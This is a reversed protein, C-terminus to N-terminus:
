PTSRRFMAENSKRTVVDNLYADLFRDQLQVQDYLANKSSYKYIPVGVIGGLVDGYWTRTLAKGGPKPPEFLRAADEPKRGGVQYKIIDLISTDTNPTKFGSAARRILNYTPFNTGVMQEWGVRPTRYTVNGTVPDVGFRDGTRPDRYADDYGPSFRLPVDLASRGLAAEPIDTLVPTINSYMSQIFQGPAKSLGALGEKRLSNSVEGAFQVTPRVSELPNAIGSGIFMDSNEGTIFGQIPDMLSSEEDGYMEYMARSASALLAARKPYKFPLAFALRNIARMWGYFPFVRRLWVREFPNYRSYNGMFRDTELIVDDILDDAWKEGRTAAASVEDWASVLTAPDNRLRVMDNERMKKKVAHWYMARRPIAELRANMRYGGAIVRKVINRETGSMGRALQGLDSSLGTAAIEALVSDRYKKSAAMRVAQLDAGAGLMFQLSMGFGNQIYWRPSLALVGAKWMSNLDDLINQRTALADKWGKEAARPILYQTGGGPMDELQSLLAADAEALAAEANDEDIKKGMKNLISQRIAADARLTRILERKSKAIYLGNSKKAVNVASRGTIPKGDDGRVVFKEVFNSVAQARGTVDIADRIAAMSIDPSFAATGERLVIGENIKARPTTTRPSEGLLPRDGLRARIGPQRQRFNPFYEGPKMGGLASDVVKKNKQEVLREDRQKKIAANQQRVKQGRKAQLASMEAKLEASRKPSAKARTTLAAIESDIKAIQGKLTVARAAAKRQEVIAKRVRQAQDFVGAAVEQARFGSAQATEKGIVRADSKLETSKRLTSEMERTLDNIFKPATNPDLWEDPVSKLGEINKQAMKVYDPNPQDEIAKEYQRILSDRGWTRSTKTRSLNNLGMARIAATYYAQEARGKRSGAAGVAGKTMKPAKRVLSQLVNTQRLVADDARELFRFGENRTQKRVIREYRASNSMPNLRRGNKNIEIRGLGRKAAAIAPDTVARQIERTIPNSSRPRLRRVAVASGPVVTRGMDDVSPSIREPARVRRPVAEGPVAITARSGARSLAASGTARGTARLAAGTTAGVGSYVAGVTGGVRIPENYFRRGFEAVDGRLLPGFSFAVDGAAGKLMGVTNESMRDLAPKATIGPLPSLAIQGMDRINQGILRSTGTIIQQGERAANLGFGGVFKFPATIAGLIGGGEDPNERREIRQVVRPVRQRIDLARRGGSTIERM